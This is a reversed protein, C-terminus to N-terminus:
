VPLLLRQLGALENQEVLIKNVKPKHFAPHTFLVLTKMPM